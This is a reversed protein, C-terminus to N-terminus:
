GLNSIFFSLILLGLPELMIMDGWHALGLSWVEVGWEAEDYLYKDM